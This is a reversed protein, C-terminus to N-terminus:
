HVTAAPEIPGDMACLTLRELDREGGAVCKLIRQAICEHSFNGYGRQALQGYVIDLVNCMLEIDFPSYVAPM